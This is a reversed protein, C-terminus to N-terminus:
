EGNHAEEALTLVRDVMAACEPNARQAEICERWTELPASYGDFKMAEMAAIFNWHDAEYELGLRECATGEVARAFCEARFKDRPTAENIRDRTWPVAVRFDLAHTAEHVADRFGQADSGREQVAAVVREASITEVSM